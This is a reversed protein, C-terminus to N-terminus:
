AEEVFQPDISFALVDRLNVGSQAGETNEFLLFGHEIVPYPSLQHGVLQKGQNNSYDSNTLINVNWHKILRAM